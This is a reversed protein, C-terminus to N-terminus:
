SSRSVAFDALAELSRRAIGDTLASLARKACQAHKAATALVDRQMDNAERLVILAQHIDAESLEKRRLIRRLELAGVDDQALRRLVPLSYVGGRFDTNVPKGTHVPDGWLDLMDDSLQFAIGLHLGYESLADLSASGLGALLGGLRAALTFLTSTKLALIELHEDATLDANFANEAERLQGTCLDTAARSALQATESGLSVFLESARSFVFTGGVSAIENGWRTNASALGRRAAARDMVDDHYLSAIHLLEVGAAAALAAEDPPGGGRALLVIAPRLRKGPLSVLHEAVEALGIDDAHVASRLARDLVGAADEVDQCALWPGFV